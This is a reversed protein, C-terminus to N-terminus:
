GVLVRVAERVRQASISRLCDLHLLPCERQCCPRCSLNQELIQMRDMAMLPPAFRSTTSGYIAVTPRNLAAAMHLLGSDNSVVVDALALLDLAELLRTRGTLDQYGEPTKLETTKTAAQLSATIQAALPQEKQSGMVWVQWGEALMQQALEAFHEIPWRKAPGFEAGPCLVILRQESRYNFQAALTAQLVPDVRLSPKPLHEPLESGAPLALAAYRQVMLPYQSFQPQRCDNLLGYRYEGRWGTRLPIDAGYTLLASKWTNPLVIAHDFRQSKQQQSWARRQWFNLRGHGFPLLHTQAIQPMRQALAATSAPAAMHIEMSPFQQALLLPVVQAMIMDGVWAPGILLCKM